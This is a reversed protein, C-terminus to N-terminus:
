KKSKTKQAVPKAVDTPEAPEGKVVKLITTIEEVTKNALTKAHNEAANKTYFVNDDSTKFYKQM